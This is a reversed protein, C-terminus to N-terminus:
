NLSIQYITAKMSNAQQSTDYACLTIIYKGTYQSIDIEITGDFSITKYIITRTTGDYLNVNFGRVWSHDASGSAVGKITLTNYKSLDIYNNTKFGGYGWIGSGSDGFTLCWTGKSQTGISPSNCVEDCIENISALESLGGSETFLDETGATYLMTKTNTKATGTVKNGKIYATKGETIDDATATADATKAQLVKSINESMKELTEENSTTVGENTLAEAIKTKCTQIYSMYETHEINLTNIQNNLEAVQTSESMEKIIQKEKIISGNISIFSCFMAILIINTIISLITVGKNKM